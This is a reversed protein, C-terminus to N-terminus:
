RLPEESSLSTEKRALLLAEVPVIVMLKEPRLVPLVLKEPVSLMSMVARLVSGSTERLVSLFVATEKLEESKLVTQM